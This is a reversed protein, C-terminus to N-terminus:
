SKSADLPHTCQVLMLIPAGGGSVLSGLTNLEAYKCMTLRELNEVQVKGTSGVCETLAEVTAKIVEPSHGASWVVLVAQGPKVLDTTERM